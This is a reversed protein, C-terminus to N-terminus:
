YKECIGLSTSNNEILESGYNCKKNSNLLEKIKTINNNDNNLTIGNLEIENTYLTNSINISPNIILDGDNKVINQILTKTQNVSPHSKVIEKLNLIMM